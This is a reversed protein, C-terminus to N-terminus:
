GDGPRDAVDAARAPPLRVTRVVSSFSVTVSVGRADVPGSSGEMTMIPGDPSILNGLATTGAKFSLQAGANLLVGTLVLAFSTLNM